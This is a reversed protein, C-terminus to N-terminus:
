IVHQIVIMLSVESKIGLGLSAAAAVMLIILTTDRCADWVFNQLACTMSIIYLLVKKNLCLFHINSLLMMSYVIVMPEFSPLTYGFVVDKKGLIHTQDLHM